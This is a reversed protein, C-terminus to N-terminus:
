STEAFQSEATKVSVTFKRAPNVTLNMIRLYATLVSTSTAVMAVDRVLDVSRRAAIKEKATKKATVVLPTEVSALGPASAASLFEVVEAPTTMVAQASMIDANWGVVMAETKM